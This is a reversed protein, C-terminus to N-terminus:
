SKDRFDGSYIRPRIRDMIGMTQRTLRLYYKMAETDGERIIRAFDLFEQVMRNKQRKPFFFHAEGTEGRLQWRLGPMQNPKGEMRMWGAEGQVLAYSPSDSDKAGLLVASFEQGPNQYGLMLVGSTDVGNFGHNAQYVATKPLETEEGDPQLGETLGVTLALNYINIDYMAGGTRDPDFAPTVEGQLYRDYRSSYQSFNCSILKLSGVQPLLERMKWFVESHWVTMAEFLFLGQKEALTILAKTEDASVTFPKELIVHKGHLLATKAYEYHVSNILGIYVTDAGSEELLQEYDTYVQAIGYTKQFAEATKRSHPRAFIARKEIEPVEGIAELADTVIAGSGIIGLRM